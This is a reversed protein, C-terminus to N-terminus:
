EFGKRPSSPPTWVVNQLDITSGQSNAQLIRNSQHNRKSPTEYDRSPVSPKSSTWESMASILSSPKLKDFVPKMVPLCANVVGLSSELCTLLAILAYQASTNDANIDTTVKIRVLTIICIITGMSFMGSLAVKRGTPMQLGWLVPLPLAVTAIDMLFNFVGIFLDLSKQDGCTGHISQDWTYAFPRCILCCALVTASFYALNIALMGYCAIRCAETCFIRIYLFIVSARIFTVATIWLLQGVLLAKYQLIVIESDGPLNRSFFGWYSYVYSHISFISSALAFVLHWTLKGYSNTPTTPISPRRHM